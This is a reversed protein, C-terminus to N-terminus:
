GKHQSKLVVPSVFFGNRLSHRPALRDPRGLEASLLFWLIWLSGRVLYVRRAERAEPKDKKEYGAAPLSQLGATTEEQHSEGMGESIWQSSSYYYSM